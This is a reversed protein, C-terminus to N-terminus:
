PGKLVSQFGNTGIAEAPGCLGAQHWLTVQADPHCVLPWCLYDIESRSSNLVHLWQKITQQNVHIPKELINANM